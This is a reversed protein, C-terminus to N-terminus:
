RKQKPSVDMQGKNILALQRGMEQGAAETLKMELEHQKLQKDHLSAYRSYIKDNLEGLNCMIERRISIINHAKEYADAFNTSRQAMEWMQQPPYGRDAAFKRLIYNDEDDVWALLLRAEEDPDHEPPRGMVLRRSRAM